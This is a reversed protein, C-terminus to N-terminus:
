GFGSGTGAVEAGGGATESDAAGGVIALAGGGTTEVTAEVGMGADPDAGADAGADADADASCLPGGMRFGHIGFFGVGAEGDLAGAGAGAGAGFSSAGSRRL